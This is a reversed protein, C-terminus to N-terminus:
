PECGIVIVQPDLAVLEETTLPAHGDIGRRAALNDLGAYRAVDDFTTHAGAVFGEGWSLAALRPGDGTAEALEALEAQQGAILREGAAEADVAAAIARTHRWLDDFGRFADLTLTEVGHADLFARTEPATFSAIIVLEPARALLAESSGALRPIAAPWREVITSYRPDDVLPSLAVVRPRVADGLGWLVEDSLITQSAIREIKAASTPTGEDQGKTCTCGAAILAVLGVVAALHALASRLGAGAGAPSRTAGEHAPAASVPRRQM